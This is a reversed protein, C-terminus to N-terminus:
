GAIQYYPYIGPDGPGGYGVTQGTAIYGTPIGCAIGLGQLYKAPTAGTYSPDESPQGANLILFTGPMIPQGTGPDINGAVACYGADQPPAPDTLPPAAVPTETDTITLTGNLTSNSDYNSGAMTFGYTDGATVNLTANGSYSFGNSPTSCCNTPGASVLSTTTTVGLHTVFASLHATVEYYANFGTYTWALDVSGSIDSTTSFTWNGSAGCHCPNSYSYNFEAPSSTGDSIVNTTGTGNGSWPTAALAATPVVLVWCLVGAAVVALRKRGTIARGNTRVTAVVRGVDVSTLISKLPM